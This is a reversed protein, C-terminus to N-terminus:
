LKVGYTRLIGEQWPSIRSAPHRRTLDLGLMELGPVMPYEGIKEYKAPSGETFRYVCACEESSCVTLHGRVMSVYTSQDGTHFAWEEAPLEFSAVFAEDERQYIELRRQGYRAIAEVQVWKEDKSFRVHGTIRAIQELDPLRYVCTFNESLMGEYVYLCGGVLARASFAAEREGLVEGNKANVVTLVDGVCLLLFDGWAGEFSFPKMKSRGWLPLGSELEYCALFSGEEGRGEVFLYDAFLLAERGRVTYQVIGDRLIRIEDGHPWQCLKTYGAPAEEQRSCPMLDPLTFFRSEKEKVELREGQIRLVLSFGNGLVRSATLVGKHLDWCRLVGDTSHTLLYSGDSSVLMQGIRCPNGKACLVPRFDATELIWVSGRLTGVAMRGEQEFFALDNVYEGMVNPLRRKLRWQATEYVFVDNPTILAMQKGQDGFILNYYKAGNQVLGIEIERDRDRRSQTFSHIRKKDRIRYVELRLLEGERVMTCLTDGYVACRWIGEGQERPPLFRGKEGSLAHVTSGDSLLVEYSDGLFEAIMNEESFSHEGLLRLTQADLVRIVGCQRLLLLRGDASKRVDLSENPFEIKAEVRGDAPDIRQVEIRECPFIACNRRRCESVTLLIGDCGIEAYWVPGALTALLTGFGEAPDYRLVRGDNGGSLVYKGDRSRSVTNIWGTHGCPFFAEGHLLAGEFDAQLGELSLVAGNFDCLSLDLRSFDCGALSRRVEKMVGILEASSRGAPFRGRFADLARSLLRQEGRLDPLIWGEEKKVPRNRHEQLIEGLFCRVEFVLPKAGFVADLCRYALESEGEDLMYCALTLAQVGRKAAFYDRVHQHVFCYRHGTRQLVGLTLSCLELVGEGVERESGGLRRILEEAAATVSRYGGFADEGFEGCADLEERGTLVRWVIERLRRGSVVSQENQAMAWAIEPLIFDLLFGQVTPDLRTKAVASASRRVGENVEEWRSRVSYEGRQRSSFFRHLIEGRTCVEERSSAEAYLILFLPVRLIETMGDTLPEWRNREALYGYIEERGVGELPTCDFGEERLSPEEFRSTVLLRVNPCSRALYCIEETVMQLVTSGTEEILVTSVENLGDLLLLYRPSEEAREFLEDLPEVVAEYPQGFVGDLEEVGSRGVQKISKDNRIQRYICRRIFSSNSGQYLRGYTDPALSLEVFIPVVCGEEYEKQGYAEQMMHFLATTKGIGGQGVLLRHGTKERLMRSSLAGEVRPLLSENVKLAEFRGGGGNQMALWRHAAHWLNAHNVSTVARLLRERAGESGGDIIQYKLIKRLRQPLSEAEPIEGGAPLFLTITRDGEEGRYEELALAIEKRVWDEKARFRFADPSAILVYHPAARLAAAIQTDFRHGDVLAETDFFVRLGKETLYEYVARATERGDSRRYSLFIDFVKM